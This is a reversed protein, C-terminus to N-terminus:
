IDMFDDYERYHNIAQILVSGDPAKVSKLIFQAIAQLTQVDLWTEVNEQALSKPILEGVTNEVTEGRLEMEDLEDETILYFVSKEPQQEWQELNAYVWGNASVSCVTSFLNTIGQVKKVSLEKNEVLHVAVGHKGGALVSEM